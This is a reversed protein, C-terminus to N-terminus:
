KWRNFLTIGGALVLSFIGLLSAGIGLLLRDPFHFDDAHSAVRVAYATQNGEVIPNEPVPEDQWPRYAFQEESVTANRIKRFTEREDPTLSSYEVALEERVADAIVSDNVQSAEIRTSSVSYRYYSDSPGELFTYNARLRELDTSVNESESSVSGNEITAELVSRTQNPARYRDAMYPLELVDPRLSLRSGYQEALMSDNSTDIPTATYGASTRYREPGDVQEFGIAYAPGPLLVLGTVLLALAARNSPM